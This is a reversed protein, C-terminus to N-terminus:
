SGPGKRRASWRRQCRACWHTSRGGITERRLPTGCRSCPEGARGYAELSRSFYGSEGNVNVYLADFSTGGQSLAREMVARAAAVLARAQAPTVAEAPREPHVRALWLAEDAYINGIGSVVTQDLLVQKIGRRGRRLARAVAADDSEPDLVDRGIHAVSAPLLPLPTGQGAPRGDGTPVLPEVHLYGFTRQDLFDLTLSPDGLTLRARCHRHPAPADAHVRFQGSMGLHASLALLPSGDGADPALEAWLFKGRRALRSLRLGTIEAAMEAAGGPLLRVCSDRYIEVGDIRAGTVLGALGRRVTEVEPLEPM